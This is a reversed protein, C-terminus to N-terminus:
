VGTEDFASLMAEVSKVPIDSQMRHSPGLLLGTGEPALTRACAITAARIEGATGSPLVGQTSVGGYFSLKRGYETYLWHHELVEPQVPNLTTVGIEVLDPLIARIDGDSHLIVPLGAAKFVAFLQALRPKLFRRWLRPSFLMAHQAGYDDGFYGCDVGAAVFRHALKLQISTIRDFLETVWEPEEVMDMLLAEFGRLSWAREFLVMGFNPALFYEAGRQAIVGTATALLDHRDPDPWPYRDLATDEKMPAFAHWYGETRTDWGAGWWDYECTGDASAARAHTIDVRLMHNGLRDPLAELPIGFHEAMLQGMAPTYNCQTPLRDVSEGRLARRTREKRTMGPIAPLLQSM